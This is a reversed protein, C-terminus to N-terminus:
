FSQAPSPEHRRHACTCRRRVEHKIDAKFNDLQGHMRESEKSMTGYHVEHAVQIEQQFQKQRAEIQIMSRELEGKSVFLGKNFATQSLIIETLHRTLAEAQDRNLGARSCL